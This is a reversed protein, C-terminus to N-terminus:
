SGPGIGAWFAAIFNHLKSSKSPITTDDRTPIFYDLSDEAKSLDFLLYGNKSVIVKNYTKGYFPFNFGIDIPDPYQSASTYVVSNVTSSEISEYRFNDSTTEYSYGDQNPLSLSYSVDCCLVLNLLLLTLFSRILIM